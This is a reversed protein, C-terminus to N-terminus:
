YRIQEELEKEWQELQKLSFNHGILEYVQKTTYGAELLDMANKEDKKKEEISEGEKKCSDKIKRINSASVVVGKREMLMVIQQVTKGQKIYTEIQERQIKRQYRKEANQEKKAKKMYIEKAKETSSKEHKIKENISVYMEEIMKRESSTLNTIKTYKALTTLAENRGKMIEYLKTILFISKAKDPYSELQKVIGELENQKIKGKKLQEVIYKSYIIQEKRLKKRQEEQEDINKNERAEYETLADYRDIEQSITKEELETLEKEKYKKLIAIAIQNEGTMKTYLDMLFIISKTQDPYKNLEKEIRGLDKIELKGAIFESQIKNIYENQEEAGIKKELDINTKAFKMQEEEKQELDTKPTKTKEKKEKEQLIKEIKALRMVAKQDEEESSNEIIKELYYKEEQINRSARALNALYSLAYINKPNKTLLEQAIEKAEKERKLNILARIKEGKAVENEPELELIQEIKEIIENWLNEKENEDYEDLIKERIRKIEKQIQEIEKKIQKIKTQKRKEELQKRFKDDEEIWRQIDNETIPINIKRQIEEISKNNKYLNIAERRFDM